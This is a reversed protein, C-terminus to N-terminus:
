LIILENSLIQPFEEPIVFRPITVKHSEQQTTLDIAIAEFQIELCGLPVQVPTTLQLHEPAQPLWNKLIRPETLLRRTQFDKIWLKVAIHPGLNPLRIRVKISRGAILEGTPVYLEPIPLTVATTKATTSAKEPEPELSNDSSEVAPSTIDDVVIEQSLWNPQSQQSPLLKKQIKEQSNDVSIWTETTNVGQEVDLEYLFIEETDYDQYQVNIPQPLVHGQNHIWQCILPSLSDVNDSTTILEANSSLPKEPAVEKEPKIEPSPQTDQEPLVKSIKKLYPLTKVQNRTVSIGAVLYESQFHRNDSFPLQPSRRNEIKALPYPDVRPPLSIKEKPQTSLSQDKPLTKVLDFLQLDLSTSVKTEKRTNKAVLIDPFSLLEETPLSQAAASLALLETAPANITFTHSALLTAEDDVQLAAFLNIDALIVKSTCDEPIALECTFNYPLTSGTVSEKIQAVANGNVSETTSFGDLPSRLEIRLEGKYLQSYNSEDKLKVQGQITFSEGWPVFYTETHLSILLTLEAVEPLSHRPEEEELAPETTPLALDALDQLIQEATEGKLLVPSVLEDLNQNEESASSRTFLKETDTNEGTTDTTNDEEETSPSETLDEPTPTSKVSTPHSSTVTVQEPPITITTDGIHDDDLDSHTYSQSNKTTAEEFMGDEGMPDPTLDGEADDPLIELRVSHKWNQGMIDSMLDGCCSLEWSGSKLVTFPIVAVVGDDNTRRSRKKAYRKAPSEYHSYHTVRVEVDTNVYNSNAVVRYRGEPLEVRASELPLWHREGQKQILFQWNKM